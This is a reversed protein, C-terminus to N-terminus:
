VIYWCEVANASVSSRQKEAQLSISVGDSRSAINLGIRRLQVIHGPRLRRNDRKFDRHRRVPTSFSQLWVEGNPMGDTFKGSSNDASM